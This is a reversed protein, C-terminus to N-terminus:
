ELCACAETLCKFDLCWAGSAFCFAAVFITPTKARTAGMRARRMRHSEGGGDGGVGGGQEEVGGWSMAM